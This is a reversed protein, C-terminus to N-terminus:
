LQAERVHMAQLKNGRAELEFDVAADQNLFKFKEESVINSFHVFIDEGGNPNLIFGFGKRTDFWKVKSQVM